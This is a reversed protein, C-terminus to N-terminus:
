VSSNSKRRLILRATGEEEDEDDASKTLSAIELGKQAIAEQVYALGRGNDVLEPTCQLIAISNERTALLRNITLLLADLTYREYGVEAALVIDWQKSVWHQLDSDYGWRLRGVTVRSRPPANAAANRRTVSDLVAPSGDTLAVLRAGAWAASLGGIGTGAGLEIVAKGRVIEPTRALYRAVAVGGPWVQGGTRDGADKADRVAGAIAGFAQVVRMTPKRPSGIQVDREIFAPVERRSVSKSKAGPTIAAVYAGTAYTRRTFSALGCCSTSQYAFTLLLLLATTLRPTRIATQSTM